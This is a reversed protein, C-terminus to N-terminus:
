TQLHAELFWLAKDIGRSVETYLDATDKDGAKDATDIAERTSTALAAYTSVLYSVVATGEVLNDPYETIRSNAASMRATGLATGGMATMREAITDTFGLVEDALKDFLEHLQIFHM